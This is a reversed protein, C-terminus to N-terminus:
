LVRQATGQLSNSSMHQSSSKETTDHPFNVGSM